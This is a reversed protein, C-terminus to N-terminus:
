NKQERKLYIFFFSAYLLSVIFYMIIKANVIGWVGYSILQYYLIFLLLPHLISISYVFVTKQQARLATSFYTLPATMSFFLWLTKSYPIADIYKESFLFPIIIPFLVFGIIGILVFLIILLLLKPKLYMWAENINNASTLKPIFIQNFISFLAKLQNPFILAVSYVAVDATSVYRHIFYKDTSILCAFLTAASTHLGFTIIANDKLTNTRWRMMIILLICILVSVVGQRWFILDNLSTTKLLVALVLTIVAILSFFINSGILWRFWGKGNFWAQRVNKLQLLPFLAAMFLIGNAVDPDNNKYYLSFIFLFIALLISIKIKLKVIDIFNGDFNKAASISLSQALGTFAFSSAISVFSLILQYQGYTEKSIFRAWIISNVIGSLVVIIQSVGLGGLRKWSRLPYKTIKFFLKANNKM